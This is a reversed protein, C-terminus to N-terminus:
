SVDIPTIKFIFNTEWKIKKQVVINLLFQHSRAIEKIREIECNDALVMYIETGSHTFGNLKSFLKVFFEGNKGCNWALQVTTLVTDFFYPPNLIIFDFQTVPVSDLVDSKYINFDESAVGFNKQFNIRTCNIAEENLDVGTVKAKKQYALLSVLGSGCGIELLQKNEPNLTSVFEFLYTSSFFYRPHFVTPRILLHFGKIVCQREKKLYWSVYPKAFTGM